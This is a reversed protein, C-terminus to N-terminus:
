GLGETSCGASVQDDVRVDHQGRLVDAAVFPVDVQWRHSVNPSAVGRAVEEVAFRAAPSIRDVLAVHEGVDGHVDPQGVTM